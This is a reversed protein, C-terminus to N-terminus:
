SINNLLGTNDITNNLIEDVLLKGAEIAAADKENQSSQDNRYKEMLEELKRTVELRFIIEDREIEAQQELEGDEKESVVPIGKKTLTEANEMHHLRAHLAGEPIVNVAGGDQFSTVEQSDRKVYKWYPETKQLEYKSRFEAADDSEYWDLEEQISPHSPSKMFEIEGTNPNEAVSKAHWGDKEQIFMGKSVAENFDKPKRNFEWYDKVRFDTSDSQYKPLTSLYYNFPDKHRLKNVVRKALQISKTSLGQRGIRVGSQDYGGQLALARKNSNIASMYNTLDLRTSAVDSIDEVMNQQRRSEAILANADKRAGSSFAGYKKGSYNLANDVAANSGGYAAGVQAFAEDNKTITDAKKGFAQNIWGVGTLFGLPSDMIADTTTMGDTAGFIAGQVGNLMNAAKMAMSAMQGYPGFNAAADAIANYGQDIGARIHGKPGNYTNGAGPLANTIGGVADLGANIAKFNKGFFSNNYKDKFSTEELDAGGVDYTKDPDLQGDYDQSDEWLSQAQDYDERNVKVEKGRSPSYLPVKKTQRQLPQPTNLRASTEQEENYLDDWNWSTNVSLAQTENHGSKQLKTAVKTQNFRKEWPLAWSYSDSEYPLFDTEPM